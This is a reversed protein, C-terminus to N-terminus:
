GRCVFVAVFLTFLAAVISWTNVSKGKELAAVKKELEDVRKKLTDAVGTVGETLGYNGGYTIMECGLKGGIKGGIKDVHEDLWLFYKCHGGMKLKYMPCGLFLRNPNSETKSMYMVAYVGCFCRLAIGDTEDGGQVARLSCSTAPRRRLSSSGGESAM